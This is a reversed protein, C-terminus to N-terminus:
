GFRVRWRAFGGAARTLVIRSQVNTNCFSPPAQSFIPLSLACIIEYLPGGNYGTVHDQQFQRLSAHTSPPPPTPTTNTNTPRRYEADSCSSSPSTLNFVLPWPPPLPM